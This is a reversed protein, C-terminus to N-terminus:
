MKWVGEKGTEGVDEESRLGEGEGGGGGGDVGGLDWCCGKVWGGGIGFGVVEESGSSM